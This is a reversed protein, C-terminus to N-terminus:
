FPPSVGSASVGFAGVVNVALLMVADDISTEHFAGEFVSTLSYLTYRSPSFTFVIEPVDNASVPKSASVSYM